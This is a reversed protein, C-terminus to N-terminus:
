VQAQAVVIPKLGAEIRERQDELFPPLALREGLNELDEDTAFGPGDTAIEFLIGNTIRFYISQFYFRDIFPSVRLGSRAIRSHWYRQEEKDAVRFAVHHVGGAGLQAIPQDPEEVVWLENGPGGSSTEYITIQSGDPYQGDHKQQYDLVDTLISAIMDLSPVSLMAAYFGRLAYDVPVDSGDWVEGEFTASDDDILLLRQGEPDEFRIIDRGAFTEIGHHQVDHQNLRGIWYELAQRGNVRFATATISDTGRREPIVQPWDFFTMDTGPSGVKDAYFLHYASVDDQNVSKKVLRLGLIRTYFDVNNGIKKSVATVHHIGNLNM